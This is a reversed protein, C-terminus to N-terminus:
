WVLLWADDIWIGNHILQPAVHCPRNSLLPLTFRGSGQFADRVIALLRIGILCTVFESIRPMFNCPALSPQQYRAVAAFTVFKVRSIPSLFFNDLYERGRSVNLKEVRFNRVQSVISQISSLLFYLISFTIYRYEFNFHCLPLCLIDERMFAYATM